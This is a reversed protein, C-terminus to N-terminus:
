AAAYRLRLLVGKEAPYRCHQYERLVDVIRMGDPLKERVVNKLENVDNTTLDALLLEADSIRSARKRAKTRMAAASVTRTAFLTRLASRPFDYRIRLRQTATLGPSTIAFCIVTLGQRRDSVTRSRGLARLGM